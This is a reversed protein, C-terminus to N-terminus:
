YFYKESGKGEENKIKVFEYGTGSVFGGRGQVFEYGEGKCSSM